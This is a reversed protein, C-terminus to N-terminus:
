RISCCANDMKSSGNETYNCYRLPVALLPAACVRTVFMALGFLRLQAENSLLCQDSDELRNRIRNSRGSSCRGASPVPSQAAGQWGAHCAAGPPYGAFSSVCSYKRPRLQGTAGAGPSLRTAHGCSTTCGGTRGTSGCDHEVDGSPAPRFSRGRNAAAQTCSCCKSFGATCCFTTTAYGARSRIDRRGRARAAVRQAVM